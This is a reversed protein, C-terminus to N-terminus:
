PEPPAHFARLEKEVVPVDEPTVDDDWSRWPIQWGDEIRARNKADPRRDGSLWHSVIALDLDLSEALRSRAGRKSLRLRLAIAGRNMM